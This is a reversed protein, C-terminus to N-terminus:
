TVVALSMALSGGGNTGTPAAPGTPGTPGKISVMLQGTNLQVIQRQGKDDCNM